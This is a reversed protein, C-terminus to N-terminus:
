KKWDLEGGVLEIATKGSYTGATGEGTGCPGGSAVSKIKELKMNFTLDKAPTNEYTIPALNSQPSLTIKCVGPVSITVTNELNVFQAANFTYAANSVTATFLPVGMFNLECGSYAFEMKLKHQSGSTLSGIVSDTPCEVAEAGGLKFVQTTNSVHKFAGSGTFEFESEAFAASAAVSSLAFTAVLAVFVGRFTSRM